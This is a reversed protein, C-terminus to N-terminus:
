VTYLKIELIVYETQVQLLIVSLFIYNYMAETKKFRM